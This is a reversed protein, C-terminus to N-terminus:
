GAFENAPQSIAAAIRGLRAAPEGLDLDDGRVSYAEQEQEALAAVSAAARELKPSGAREALQRLLSNGKGDVQVISSEDEVGGRNEQHCFGLAIVPVCTREPTELTDRLVVGHLGLCHVDIVSGIDM